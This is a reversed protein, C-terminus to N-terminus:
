SRNMGCSIKEIRYVAWGEVLRNYLADRDSPNTFYKTREGDRDATTWSVFYQALMASGGNDHDNNSM